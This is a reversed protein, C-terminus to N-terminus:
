QHSFCRGRSTLGDAATRVLLMTSQRAITIAQEYAHRSRAAGAPDREYEYAEAACVWRHAALLPLYESFPGRPHTALYETAFMAEREPCDHYGEWEYCPRLDDVYAVALAPAQPNDSVAVLRREYAVRAVYAMHLDGPGAPVIRTSRYSEFRRLYEELEVKVAQPYATTDIQRDVGSVLLDVLADSATARSLQAFMMSSSTVVITACALYCAASKSRVASAAADIVV